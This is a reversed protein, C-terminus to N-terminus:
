AQRADESFGTELHSADLQRVRRISSAESKIM